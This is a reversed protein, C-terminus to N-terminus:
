ETIELIGISKIRTPEKNEEKNTFTIVIYIVGISLLIMILFPKIKNFIDWIKNIIKRWWSLKKHKPLTLSKIFNDNLDAYERYLEMLNEYKNQECKEILEKLGEVTDDELQENFTNIFILAMKKLISSKDINKYRNIKKLFYNFYIKGSSDMNLNSLADYLIEYPINLIICMSLIQKVIDVRKMLPLDCVEDFNLKEEEYYSFVIYVCSDKSFCEIFDTFKKNHRLSSFFDINNQILEKDKLSILTYMKKKDINPYRCVNIEFFEDRYIRKVISLEGNISQIEM